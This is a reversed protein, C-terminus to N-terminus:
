GGQQEIPATLLGKSVKLSASGSTAGMRVGYIRGQLSSPRMRAASVGRMSAVEPEAERFTLSFGQLLRPM